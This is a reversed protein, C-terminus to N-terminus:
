GNKIVNVKLMNGNIEVEEGQALGEVFLLQDALIEACIYTNFQTFAKELAPHLQIEVKVRDTLELDQDKRIKQIRNV